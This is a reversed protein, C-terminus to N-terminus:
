ADSGSADAERAAHAAMVGALVGRAEAATIAQPAGEGLKDVAIMFPEVWRGAPQGVSEGAFDLWLKGFEASVEYVGDHDFEYLLYEAVPCSASRCATGVEEEAPKTSLWDYFHKPESALRGLRQRIRKTDAKQDNSTM